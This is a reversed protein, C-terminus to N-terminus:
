MSANLRFPRSRPPVVAHLQGTFKIKCWWRLSANLKDRRGKYARMAQQSVTMYDTLLAIFQASNHYGFVMMQRTSGIRCHGRQSPSVLAM